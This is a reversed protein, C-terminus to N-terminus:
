HGNASGRGSVLEAEKLWRVDKAHVGVIEHDWSDGFDYVYAFKFNVSPVVQNLQYRREDMVPEWDEPSPISYRKNQIIFEHLHSDTWGVAVQIIQHLTYLAASDSVLLRRWIPPKSDRLTVKLQYVLDNAKSTM